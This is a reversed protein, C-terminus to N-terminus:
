FLFLFTIVPRRKIFLIRSTNTTSGFHGISPNPVIGEITPLVRWWYAVSASSPFFTNPEEVFDLSVSLESCPLRGIFDSLDDVSSIVAQSKFFVPFFGRMFDIIEKGIQCSYGSPFWM